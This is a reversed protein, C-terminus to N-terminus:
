ANFAYKLLIVWLRFSAVSLPLFWDVAALDNECFKEFNLSDIVTLNIFVQERFHPMNGKSRFAIPVLRTESLEYFGDGGDDFEDFGFGAVYAFLLVDKITTSISGM